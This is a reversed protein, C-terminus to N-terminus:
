IEIRKGRVIKNIIYIDSIQMQLVSIKLTNVALKVQIRVAHLM